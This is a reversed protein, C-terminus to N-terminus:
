MNTTVNRETRIRSVFECHHKKTLLLRGKRYCSLM